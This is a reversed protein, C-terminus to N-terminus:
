CMTPYAANRADAGRKQLPLMCVLLAAVPVPLVLLFFLRFQGLPGAFAHFPLASVLDGSISVLWAGLASGAVGAGAGALLNVAVSGAVQDRKDPCAELFAANTTNYIAYYCGGLWFFLMIASPMALAVTLSM